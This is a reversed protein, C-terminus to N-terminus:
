YVNQTLMFRVTLIKFMKGIGGARWRGVIGVLSKNQQGAIIEKLTVVGGRNKKWGKRTM